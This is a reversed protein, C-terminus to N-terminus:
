KKNQNAAEAALKIEASAQELLEKAKQAHGDLDWENAKQAATIRESARQCLKQAEALNPHRKASVNKVPREAALAASGVLLLAGLVWPLVSKRM